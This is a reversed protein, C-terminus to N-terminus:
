PVLVIVSEKKQVGGGEENFTPMLLVESAVLRLTQAHKALAEVERWFDELQIVQIAEALTQIM